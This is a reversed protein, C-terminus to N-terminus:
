KEPQPVARMNEYHLCSEPNAMNSNGYKLIRNTVICFMIKHLVKSSGDGKQLVAGETLKQLVTGKRFDNSILSREQLQAPAQYKM